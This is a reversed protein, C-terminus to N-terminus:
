YTSPVQINGARMNAFAEAPKDEAAGSRVPLVLLLVLLFTQLTREPECRSMTRLKSM